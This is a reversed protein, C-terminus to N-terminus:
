SGSLERETVGDGRQFEIFYVKWFSELGYLESKDYSVPYSQHNVTGSIIIRWGLKKAISDGINM